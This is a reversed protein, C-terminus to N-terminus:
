RLAALYDPEAAGHLISFPRLLLAHVGMRYLAGYDRELLARREGDSLEYGSLVSAPDTLWAARRGPDRNVDRMLKQVQYVSM